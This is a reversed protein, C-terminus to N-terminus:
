RIGGAWHSLGNGSRHQSAPTPSCNRACEVLDFPDLRHVAVLHRWGPDTQWLAAPPDRGALVAVCDARLGPILQGRLWGDIPALLEYGYVLLVAGALLRGAPQRDDHHDVALRIATDLGEPSPDVDRGDIQVVRRGAAQARAHFEQLLTTKGIGGQGHVFLVRRSTRGAIADDFGALESRRGVFRQRRASELLDGLHTAV